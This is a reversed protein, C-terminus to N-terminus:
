MYTLTKLNINSLLFLWLQPLLNLLRSHSLTQECVRMQNLNISVKLSKGLLYEFPVCLDNHVLLHSSPMLLLVCFGDKVIGITVFLLYYKM